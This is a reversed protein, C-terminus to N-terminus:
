CVFINSNQIFVCVKKLQEITTEHTMSQFITSQTYGQSNGGKSGSIELTFFISLDKHYVQMMELESSISAVYLHKTYVINSLLHKNEFHFNQRAGCLWADRHYAKPECHTGQELFTFNNNAFFMVTNWISATLITFLSIVAPSCLSGHDWGVQLPGDRIHVAMQSFPPITVAGEGCWPFGWDQTAEVSTSEESYGLSHPVAHHELPHIREKQDQCARLMVGPKEWRTHRIKQPILSPVDWLWHM